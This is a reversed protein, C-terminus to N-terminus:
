GALKKREEPLATIGHRLDTLELQMQACRVAMANRARLLREARDGVDRLETHMANIETRLRVIEDYLKRSVKGTAKAGLVELENGTM